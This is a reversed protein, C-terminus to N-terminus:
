VQSGALFKVALRTQPRDKATSFNYGPCFEDALVFDNGFRVPNGQGAGGPVAQRSEGRVRQRDVGTLCPGRKGRHVNLCLGCGM